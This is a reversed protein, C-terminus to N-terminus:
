DVRLWAKSSRGLSYAPTLSIVLLPRCSQSSFAARSVQARLLSMLSCSTFMWLGSIAARVLHKPYNHTTEELPGMAISKM